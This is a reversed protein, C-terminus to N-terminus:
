EDSKAPVRRTVRTGADVSSATTSGSPAASQAAPETKKVPAPARKQGGFCTALISLILVVSAVAGGIAGAADPMSTIVAVKNAEKQLRDVFEPIRSELRKIIRQVVKPYSSHGTEYEHADIQENTEAEKEIPYKKLFTEEAFARADEISHGVYINDFLLDADMTWLEFGIGGIPTFHNPHEDHFYEPNPIQRPKWEGKYAPNDIMPPEWKGKYAPNPILPATWKGCGSVESCRPNPISPPMWEGDEEDDWEEPKVSDPDPIELPEDEMWDGPKVAKPDPIERPANEDWDKPKRAKPDPIQEEDVWDKPKTDKPDDIMEPPNVPPDFSDLLTGNLKQEMNIDIEFTNNPYVILTYLSTVKGIKPFPPEKLHKEEIVGTKPSKHRFIFHVKNTAGCRDPGFMITYPTQDSFAEPKFENSASLLKLYAGGCTLGKQLKTEYQVVLPQTGDFTIPKSFQASIAHQKAESKLTLGKDGVLGPYVTPEEVSWVGDYKFEEEGRQLKSAKSTAWRKDWGSTFQELFPAKIQTPVFEPREIAADVPTSLSLLTVAAAAAVAGYTSKIM